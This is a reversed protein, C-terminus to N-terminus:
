YDIKLFKRVPGYFPFIKAIRIIWRPLHDFLVKFRTLPHAFFDKRVNELNYKGVFKEEYDFPIHRSKLTKLIEVEIQDSNYNHDKIEFFAM